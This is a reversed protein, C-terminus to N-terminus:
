CDPQGPLVSRLKRCLGRRRLTQTHRESQKMESAKVLRSCVSSPLCGLILSAGSMAPSVRRCFRGRRHRFSPRSSVSCPRGCPGSEPRGPQPAHSLTPGFMRTCSSRQLLGKQGCDQGTGLRKSENRHGLECRRRVPTWHVVDPQFANMGFGKAGPGSRRNAASSAASSSLVM